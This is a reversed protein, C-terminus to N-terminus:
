TDSPGAIGDFISSSTAPRPDTNGYHFTAIVSDVDRDTRLRVWEADGADALSVPLYGNEPVTVSKWTSWNGNGAIDFEITFRVPQDSTHSLHLLRRQWGGCQYAHSPVDAKVADNNWVSGRGIPVGFTDIREPKVFWLNAHSISPTLNGRIKRPNLRIAQRENSLDNCAFAIRDGWRTSDSVM